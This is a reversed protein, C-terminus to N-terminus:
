AVTAGAPVLGSSWDIAFSVANATLFRPTTAGINDIEIANSEAAHVGMATAAAALALLCAGRHRLGVFSKRM